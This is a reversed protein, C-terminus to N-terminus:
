PIELVSIGILNVFRNSARTNSSFPSVVLARAASLAVGPPPVPMPLQISNTKRSRPSDCLLNWDLSPDLQFKPPEASCVCPLKLDGNILILLGYRSQLRELGNVRLPVDLSFYVDTSYQERALDKSTSM